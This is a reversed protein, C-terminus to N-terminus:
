GPRRSCGARAGSARAAAAAPDLLDYCLDNHIEVFSVFVACQAAPDPPLVAGPPLAAAEM